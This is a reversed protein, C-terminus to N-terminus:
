WLVTKQPYEAGKVWSTKLGHELTPHDIHKASRTVSAMSPLVKHPEGFWRRVHEARASWLKSQHESLFTYVALAILNRDNGPFPARSTCAGNEPPYQDTEAPNQAQGPFGRGTTGRTRKWFIGAGGIPKAAWVRPRWLKTGIETLGTAIRIEM